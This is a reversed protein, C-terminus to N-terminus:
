LSRPVLPHRTFNRLLHLVPSAVPSDITSGILKAATAALWDFEGSPPHEVVVYLHKEQLDKFIESIRGWPQLATVGTVKNNELKLSKLANEFEEAM